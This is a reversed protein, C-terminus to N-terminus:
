DDDDPSWAPKAVKNEAKIAENLDRERKRHAVTQETVGAINAVRYTVEGGDLTRFTIWVEAPPTTLLKQISRGEEASVIFYGDPILCVSWYDGVEEDGPTM